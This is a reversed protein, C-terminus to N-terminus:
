IIIHINSNHNIEDELWFLQVFILIKTSCTALEAGQIFCLCKIGYILEIAYLYGNGYFLAHLAAPM